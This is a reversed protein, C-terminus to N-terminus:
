IRLLIDRLYLLDCRKGDVLSLLSFNILFGLPLFKGYGQCRGMVKVRLIIFKRQVKSLLNNDNFIVFTSVQSSDFEFSSLIHFISSYHFSLQLLVYFVTMFFGESCWLKFSFILFSEFLKKKIKKERQLMSNKNCKCFIVNKRM